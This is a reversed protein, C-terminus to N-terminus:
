EHCLRVAESCSLNIAPAGGRVGPTTRRRRRPHDMERKAEIAQPAVVRRRAGEKARAERRPNRARGRRPDSKDRWFYGFAGRRAARGCRERRQPQGATSARSPGTPLEPGGQDEFVGGKGGDRVGNRPERLPAEGSGPQGARFDSRREAADNWPRGQLRGDPAGRHPATGSGTVPHGLVALSQAQARFPPPCPRGGGARAAPCGRTSARSGFGRLAPDAVGDPPGEREDRERPCALSLPGPHPASRGRSVLECRLQAENM